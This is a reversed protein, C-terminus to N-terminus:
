RKSTALRRRPPRPRRTGAAPAHPPRPYGAARRRRSGRRHNRATRTSRRTRSRSGAVHGPSGRADRLPARLGVADIREEVPEALEVGLGRRADVRLVVSPDIRARSTEFLPARVCPAASGSAGTSQCGRVRSIPRCTSRATSTSRSSARTSRIHRSPSTARPAIVQAGPARVRTVARARSRSRGPERVARPRSEGLRLGDGLRLREGAAVRAALDGPELPVASEVQCSGGTSAAARQQRRVSRRHRHDCPMSTPCSWGSSCPM